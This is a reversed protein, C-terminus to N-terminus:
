GKTFVPIIHNQEMDMLSVPTHMAEAANSTDINDIIPTTNITLTQLEM